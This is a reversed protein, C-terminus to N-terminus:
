QGDENDPARPTQEEEYFYVGFRLRRNANPLDKDQDCLETAKKTFENFNGRWLQSAQQQLVKVSSATLEDAFIAHELFKPNDGALNSTASALHDRLNDSFLGFLETQDHTPVFGEVLLQLHDSEPEVALGLRVLSDWISRPHVDRTVEQVLSEFSPVKGLRPLVLPHGEKSQYRNDAVWRTFVQSAVSLPKRGKFPEEGRSLARLDKRHVGSLVSVASDTSKSGKAELESIAEEVFVEKLAKSLVPYTVGERILLRVLPHLLRLTAALLLESRSNKQESM